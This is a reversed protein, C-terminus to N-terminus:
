RAFIRGDVRTGPPGLVLFQLNALYRQAAARIAEPTVASYPDEAAHRWGGRVLEFEALRREHIDQIAGSRFLM